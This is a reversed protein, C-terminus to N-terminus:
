KKGPECPSFDVSDSSIVMTESTLGVVVLVFGLIDGSGEPSGLGEEEFGASWSCGDDASSNNCASGQWRRWRNDQM